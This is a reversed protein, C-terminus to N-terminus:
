LVLCAPLVFSSVVCKRKCFQKRETEWDVDELEGTEPDIAAWKGWVACELQQVADSAPFFQQDCLPTVISGPSRNIVPGESFSGSDPM